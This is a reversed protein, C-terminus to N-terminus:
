DRHEYTIMLANDSNDYKLIVKHLAPNEKGVLQMFEENRKLYIVLDTPIVSVFTNEDISAVPTSLIYLLYNKEFKDQTYLERIKTNYIAFWIRPSIFYKFFLFDRSRFLRTDLHAPALRREAVQLLSVNDPKKEKGFDFEYRKVPKGHELVYVEPSFPESCLIEDNLETVFGTYAYSPMEAPNEDFHIASSIVNFKRDTLALNDNDSTNYNKFFVYGDEISAFNWAFMNLKYTTLYNGAMDYELLQQMGTLVRITDNRIEFDNM